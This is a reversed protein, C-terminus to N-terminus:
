ERSLQLLIWAMLERLDRLVINCTQYLIHRHFLIRRVMEDPGYLLLVFIWVSVFALAWAMAVIFILGNLLTRLPPVPQLDDHWVAFRM